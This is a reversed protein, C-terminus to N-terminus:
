VISLPSSKSYSLNMILYGCVAPIRAFSFLFGASTVFHTIKNKTTRQDATFRLKKILFYYFPM